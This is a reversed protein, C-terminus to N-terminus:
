QLRKISRFTLNLANVQSEQSVKQEQISDCNTPGGELSLRVVGVLSLFRFSTLIMTVNLEHWKVDSENRKMNM